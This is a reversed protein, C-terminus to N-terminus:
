KSKKRAKLEAEAEQKTPFVERLWESQQFVRRTSIFESEPWEVSIGKDDISLVEAAAVEAKRTFHNQKIVYVQGEVAYQKFGCEGPSSSERQRLFEQEAWSQLDFGKRQFAEADLEAKYVITGVLKVVM